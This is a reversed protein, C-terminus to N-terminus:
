QNHPVSNARRLALVLVLAVSWLPLIPALFRDQTADLWAARALVAAALLVVACVLGARKELRHRSHWCSILAGAALLHLIVVFSFHFRGILKEISFAVGSRPGAGASRRLTMQNYLSTEAKTLSADDPLAAIPWQAFVRAGVRAASAPLRCLGGSQSFPDLFVTSSSALRCAGM